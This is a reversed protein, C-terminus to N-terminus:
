KRQQMFDALLSLLTKTLLEHQPNRGFQCFCIYFLFSQIATKTSAKFLVKGDVSVVDWFCMLPHERKLCCVLLTGYFGKSFAVHVFLSVSSFCSASSIHPVSISTNFEEQTGSYIQGELWPCSSSIYMKLCMPNFFIDMMSWLLQDSYLTTCKFISM